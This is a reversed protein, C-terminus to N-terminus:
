QVKLVPQNVIPTGNKYVILAGPPSDSSGLVTVQCEYQYPGSKFQFSHNGGSGDFEIEGNKLVLDPKESVPKGKAWSSYRYKGDNLQDIRITFKETQWMLVPRQYERLSPHLTNKQQAILKSILKAERETQANVAIIQGDYDMWVKGNGLMIGRWGVTQWDHQTTSQAITDLLTSDFVEDFRALMSQQDNIATLPYERQLPYAIRKAIAQHDKNKAAAIFSQVMPQYQPALPEDDAYVPAVGVILWLVLLGCLGSKLWAMVSSPNRRTSVRETVPQM